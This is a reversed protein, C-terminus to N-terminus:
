EGVLLEPIRRDILYFVQYLADVQHELLAAHRPYHPLSCGLILDPLIM